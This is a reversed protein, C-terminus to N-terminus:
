FGLHRKPDIVATLYKTHIETRTYNGYYMQFSFSKHGGMGGQELETQFTEVIQAVPTGLM